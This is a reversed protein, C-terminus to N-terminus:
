FYLCVQLRVTPRFTAAGDLATTTTTTDSLMKDNLAPQEHHTSVKTSSYTVLPNQADASLSLGHGLFWEVGLGWSLGASLGTTTQRDVQTGAAADTNRTANTLGVNAGVLALLDVPGKGMVPYRVNAGVMLAYGATGENAKSEVAAQGPLTVSSNVANSGSDAGLRVNPELAFAALRVRVGVTNPELLSQPFAWGAAIGVTTGEPRGEAVAPELALASSSLSFIAIALTPLRM